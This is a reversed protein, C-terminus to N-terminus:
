QFERETNIPNGCIPPNEVATEDPPPGAFADAVAQAVMAPPLGCDMSSRMLNAFTHDANAQLAVDVAVGALVGDGRLFATLALLCAPEARYPAPLARTIETWLQEIPHGISTVEPRMCGDRVRFNSFAVGLEVLRDEGLTWTGERAEAVLEDILQRSRAENQNLELAAKIREARQPLPSRDAPELTARLEEKSDYTVVGVAAAAAALMSSSPDPISGNCDVHMYCWWMLNAKIEPVWFAHHVMVGSAAFVVGIIDVLRSHPLPEEPRAEGDCVVVVSVGCSNARLIPDRLQMALAHYLEPSPVDARLCATVQARATGSYVCVVVSEAPRFGLLYPVAAILEGTDRIPILPRQKTQM